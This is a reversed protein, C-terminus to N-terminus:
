IEIAESIINKKSNKKIEIRRKVRRERDIQKQSLSKPVLEYKNQKFVIEYPYTNVIELIDNKKMRGMSNIKFENNSKVLEILEKKTINM